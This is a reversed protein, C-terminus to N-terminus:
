INIYRNIRNGIIALSDNWFEQQRIDIGFRAALETPRAEGATALLNIYDPVFSEGRKQYIAYLGTGFLLGFAYPFNYFPTNVMYYHDKRAWMYKHLHAPNLGDGYAAIQSKEMIECLEDASLEAQGRREFVEKEFLFRSYIDVIVQSAGILQTELIALAEQPRISSALAAETVITECMISATEAVTMPIFKQAETKGAKVLCDNHFGHGLEHAITSVQDLSGDFNCLIRSEGIGPIESCFAGGRKGARPEADIWNLDYARRAFSALIPSFQNFNEHVFEFAQNFSFVRDSEGTPAFLDWWDLSPKGFRAAKAKFYRRFVPLSDRMASLMAELTERELRSVELARHLADPRGRLRDLTNAAGKIGNMAAALPERVKEWVALETEYGRQRVAPDPHSCLNVVATIPLTQKKGDLEIEATLQSNVTSHLKSWSNAGSLNLEAALDEEAPSMLYRSQQVAENIFFAHAQASDELKLISPIVQSISGVWRQFSALIKDLRVREQELISLARQAETNFSDTAIYLDIYSYLKGFLTLVSNLHDIAGSLLGNLVAPDSDPGSPQLLTAIYAEFASLQQTLELSDAKFKESNLSPYVNSLDWHPLSSNDM